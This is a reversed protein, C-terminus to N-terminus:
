DVSNSSLTFSKANSLNPAVYLFRRGACKFEALSCPCRQTWQCYRVSGGRTRQPHHHLQRRHGGGLRLLHHRLHVPLAPLPARLERLVQKTQCEGCRSQLVAGGPQPDLLGPSHQGHLGHSCVCGRPHLPSCLLVTALLTLM